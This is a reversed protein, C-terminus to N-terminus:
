SACLAAFLGGKKHKLEQPKGFERIVGADMVCVRDYDIISSIRHAIALVTKDAFAEKITKTILKDTLPDISASHEDFVVVKADRCVARALCVLQRQGVSFNEGNNEVRMDIGGGREVFDWICAKKLADVVVEESYRRSRFSPNSRRPSSALRLEGREYEDFPDLNSKITGSFMVPDQPVIAIKKRLLDLGVGAIDVGDVSISGASAEVIRFLALMLSSKGSGTRGVVGCKMGGELEMSVGKLVLELGERYRMELNKIELRGEKIWGSSAKAADEPLM